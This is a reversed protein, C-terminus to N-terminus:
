WVVYMYQISPRETRFNDLLKLVFYPVLILKFNLVELLLLHLLTITLNLVKM